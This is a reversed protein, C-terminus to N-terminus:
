RADKTLDLSEKVNNGKLSSLLVEVSGYTHDNTSQDEGAMNHVTLRLRPEAEKKGAGSSPLCSFGYQVPPWTNFSGPADIIPQAPNLLKEKAGRATCSIRLYPADKGLSFCLCLKKRTLVLNQAALQM